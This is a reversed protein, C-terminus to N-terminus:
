RIQPREGLHGGPGATSARVILRPDPRHPREVEPSAPSGDLVALLLEVADRAVEDLGLDVATLPPTSTRARLGAYRTAVLLDVGVSRGAAEAARVAGSAFTDIPVFLADVDPADSLIAGAADAGAPEGEEEDAEAIVPAFGYEAAAALYANRAAVQAGRESTGVILAPRRAGQAILHEVLLEATQAHRLDVVGSAQAAGGPGDITVYPIGRAELASAIPDDVAPELLVAGDIDLRDVPDTGSVPPTLMFVYGRLLATRACSMALETFFGLQSPGASVAAPMSSLLALSQSRGKRLGQARVSPRYNLEAAVAMVRERTQSNVKGLGNLAHSVTTRSVGAERAVDAITARHPRPQAPMPEPYKLNGPPVAPAPSLRAQRM